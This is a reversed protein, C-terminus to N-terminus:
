DREVLTLPNVPRIKSRYRRELDKIDANFWANDDEISGRGSPLSPTRGAVAEPRYSKWFALGDESLIYSPDLPRGLKQEAEAYMASAVGNRKAAPLVQVDEVYPGRKAHKNIKMFGVAAGKADRAVLNSGGWHFTLPIRAM